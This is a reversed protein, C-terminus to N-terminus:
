FVFAGNLDKCNHFSWELEGRFAEIVELADFHFTCDVFEVKKGVYDWINVGSILGARARFYTNKIRVAERGSM